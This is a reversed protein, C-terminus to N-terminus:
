LRKIGRICDFCTIGYECIKCINRNVLDGCQVCTVDEPANELEYLGKNEPEQTM